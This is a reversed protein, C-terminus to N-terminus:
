KPLGPAGREQGIADGCQCSKLLPTEDDDVGGDGLPTNRAAKMVASVM